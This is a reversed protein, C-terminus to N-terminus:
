PISKLSGYPAMRPYIEKGNKLFRIGRVVITQSPGPTLELRWKRSRTMPLPLEADISKLDQDALETPKEMDTAQVRIHTAHHDMASHQTHVGLGNIEVPFPFTIDLRARSAPFEHVTHWMNSGDYTVGPGESPRIFGYLCREPQSGGYSGVNSTATPYFNPHGPLNMPGLPAVYRFLSYGTPVNRLVDFSTKAFVKDNLALVRIDEPNLIGPTPSPQLGQNHHAPNYSMLSMNTNMSYGYADVHALGFSHGLEHQLTCQFHPNQALEGSAIYFMGGGANTGGNIPRGGGLPFRDVANMLLIAFTYPNEFRNLKLHDLIEAVIMPAGGEDASRYDALTRRGRVQQLQAANESFEFTDGGLLEGYRQQAWTLHRLYLSEEKATPPKQDKPIFALPLVRIRSPLREYGSEPAAATGEIPVSSGAEATASESLLGDLNLQKDRLAQAEDLKGERTLVKIQSEITKLVKARAAEIVRRHKDALPKMSSSSPLEGSQQFRQQEAQVEKLLKANGVRGIEKVKRDFAAELLENQKQRTEQFAQIATTVEDDSRASRPDMAVLAVVVLRLLWKM